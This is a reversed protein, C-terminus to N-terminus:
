PYSYAMAREKREDFFTTMLCMVASQQRLSSTSAEQREPTITSRGLGICSVRRMTGKLQHFHFSAVVELSTWTLSTLM